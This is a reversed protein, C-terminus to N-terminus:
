APPTPDPFFRVLIKFLELPDIPKAAYGDMGNALCRSRDYRSGHATLAVIL